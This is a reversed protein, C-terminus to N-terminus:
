REERRSCCRHPNSKISIRSDRTALCIFILKAFTGKADSPCPLLTLLLLFFFIQVFSLFSSLALFLIPFSFLVGVITECIFGIAQLTAQRLGPNEPQSVLALLQAILDNWLGFPLEIAAIAAVAQAAVHRARSDASALTAVVDGKAKLRTADDVTSKWRAAYEEKRGTERATLANKFALGAANRIHSPSQENVLEAVLSTVYGAFADRELSALQDTAQQRATADPSLTHELLQGVSLAAMKRLFDDFSAFCVAPLFLLVNAVLYKACNEIGTFAGM